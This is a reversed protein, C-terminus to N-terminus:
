GLPDTGHWTGSSREVAFRTFSTRDALPGAKHRMLNDKHVGPGYAFKRMSEFDRWFTLTIGDVDLSGNLFFSQQSHMGPVATMSIRVAAVGAGFEAAREQWGDSQEFGASTMVVFPGSPLAEGPCDFVEGPDDRDLFNAKGVHRVPKLVGSWVEIAGSEWPLERHSFEIASDLNSHLGVAVFKYALSSDFKTGAARSDAGVAGFLLGAVGQVDILEAQRPTGFRVLRVSAHSAKMAPCEISM